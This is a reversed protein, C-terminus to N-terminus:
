RAPPSARSGCRRDRPGRRRLITMAGGDVARHDDGLPRRRGAPDRDSAVEARAGAIRIREVVARMKATSRCAADLGWREARGDLALRYTRELAERDGALTGRISEVFAPSRRTRRCSRATNRAPASSRSRRRWRGGPSPSRAQAHAEGAHRARHLAARGLIRRATSSPSTSPERRLDRPRVQEARASDCYAAALDWDAPRARALAARCRRRLLPSSRHAPTAPNPTVPAAGSTTSTSGTTPRRAATTSSCRPMASMAARVAATAAARRGPRLLRRAARLAHRLPQRRPVPGGHLAGPVAPDGGHADARAAVAGARRPLRGAPTTAASRATPSCASSPARTSGTACSWCRNSMASRSSTRSRMRTSPRWRRTSRARTTRTCRWRSACGPSGRGVARM